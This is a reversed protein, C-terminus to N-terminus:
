VRAGRPLDVLPRLFEQPVKWCGALDDDPQWYPQVKGQSAWTWGVIRYTPVDCVVLVFVADDSDSPRLILPGDLRKTSRVQYPGVDGAYDLVPSDAWYLGLAKALAMEAAAANVHNGWPDAPAYVRHKARRELARLQRQIGVQAAQQLEAWCLTVVVGTM